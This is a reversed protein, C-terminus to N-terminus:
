PCLDTGSTPCVQIVVEAAPGIVAGTGTTGNAVITFTYFAPVSISPMTMRVSYTRSTLEALDTSIRIPILVSGDDFELIPKIQLGVSLGDEEVLVEGDGGGDTVNILDRIGPPVNILMFAGATVLSDAANVANGRNDITFNLRYGVTGSPVDKIAFLPTTGSFSTKAYTNVIATNDASVGTTFPGKGFQGFSSYTNYIISNVPADSSPNTPEVSVIWEEIDNAKVLVPSATNTWFILNTGTPTWGTAPTVGTVSGVLDENNPNILQISVQNVIFAHDTPNQVVISFYGTETSSSDGFPNPFSIFTEPSALIQRRVGPVIKVITSDENFIYSSTTCGEVQAKVRVLFDLRSGVGGVFEPEWMFTTSENPDLRTINATTVFPYGLSVAEEPDVSPDGNPQVNLLTTNMRNFVHAGLTINQGSAANVPYAFATVNFRPDPLSTPFVKLETTQVIGSTSVVKIDYSTGPGTASTLTIPQNTLIQRLSSAPVFADRFDIDFQRVVNNTKNVIFLDAIELPTSGSNKVSVCLRNGIGSDYAAAITFQGQIKQIENQTTDLQTNLFNSNTQMMLIFATFAGVMIVVFFFTGVITSIAKRNKFNSTKVLKDGQM